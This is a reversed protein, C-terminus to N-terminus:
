GWAAVLLGCAALFCPLASKKTGNKAMKKKKVGKPGCAFGWKAAMQAMADLICNEAPARPDSIRATTHWHDEVATQLDDHM